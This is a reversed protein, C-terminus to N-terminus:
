FARHHIPLFTGIEGKVGFSHGVFIPTIYKYLLHKASPHFRQQMTPLLDSSEHVLANLVLV